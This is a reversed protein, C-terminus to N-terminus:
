LTEIYRALQEIDEDSLDAPMANRMVTAPGSAKGAGRQGDRFHRLQRSLYTSDMGRIRPANLAQNGRGQLGHCAACAAFATPPETGDQSDDTKPYALDAIHEGLITVAEDSLNAAMLAMQAGWPDAPYQGRRGDRFDQLQRTIYAASQGQLSPANIAPSGEGNQGHCSVCPFYLQSANDAQSTLSALSLVQALIVATLRTM